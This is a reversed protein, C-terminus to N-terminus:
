PDVRILGDLARVTDPGLGPVRAALDDISTYPGHDAREVVVRSALVPGLGPLAELQSASARNLDVPGPDDVRVFPALRELTGRGVGPVRALDDLSRFPGRAERDAVIAEATARGLGPVASLALADARNPDIPLGVLVPDSPPAVRVRDGSVEVRDGFSLVRDEAEITAGAARLAGLLTGGEVLHLGPRPVDGRVEIVVGDSVSPSWLARTAALLAASFLLAGVLRSTGRPPASRPRGFSLREAAM